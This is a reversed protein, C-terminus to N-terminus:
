THALDPNAFLSHGDPLRGVNGQPHEQWYTHRANDVEELRHAAFETELRTKNLAWLSAIYQPIPAGERAYRIAPALLDAMPKRGFREHLAFWGDVAGPVSNSAAGFSPVHAADGHVAAVRRLEALSLGQPSRGSGNYGYLKHTRPDWVIAFMDGGVGSSVPEVLGLMANAAIAADIASGGSKLVDMAVQTALPHATAAAGHAGMVPSRTAFSQGSVRQGRAFGPDNQRPDRGAQAHAIGLMLATGLALAACAGL